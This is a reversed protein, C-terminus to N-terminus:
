LASVSLRGEAASGVAVQPVGEKFEDRPFVQNDDRFLDFRVCFLLDKAAVNIEFM